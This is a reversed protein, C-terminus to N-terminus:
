AQDELSKAFTELDDLINSWEPIDTFDEEEAYLRDTEYDFTKEFVAIFFGGTNM